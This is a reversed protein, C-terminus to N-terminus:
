KAGKDEGPKAVKVEKGDKVPSFSLTIVKDGLEVGSLIEVNKDDHMGLKVPRRHAVNKEDVVAITSDGEPSTTVAERPVLLVGHVEKTVISVHGFMGPKVLHGPNDIKILIQYQRSQPDAAPNINTIPGQFTKGPLADISVHAIESQRLQSGVDIPISATVYLWDLFQVELVPTGSSALTGPDAKRATVTGAMTARIETDRMKAQAQHLQAVASDVQSQLAALNARYAPSQSRNAKAVDLGAQAQALKAQSAAIDARGKRKVIALNQQQVSLQAKASAVQNQAVAVASAQAAVATDTDELDQKSSYGKNYLNTTRNLKAKVNVLTAQEKALQAQQQLVNQNAADIQAQATAIEADYNQRVQNLDAKASALAANQQQITSTIGVDNAGATMQAQALRSRAEAIAAQQQTVAAQLDSPDIKLLLEGVTVPDGERAQLYLVRGSIKPSIEVKYPSEVNAVSDLTQVIDGRTVAAVQVTPKSGGGGGM